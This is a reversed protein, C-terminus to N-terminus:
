EKVVKQVCKRGESDTVNVFYVGAPLATMDIRLEDDEGQVSLVPQGLLNVVEAQQLNKGMITITGSTPNPHITAFSTTTHEEVDDTLSTQGYRLPYDPITCYAIKDIYLRYEIPGGTSHIGETGYGHYWGYYFKGDIVKRMGYTEHYIGNSSQNPYYYDLPRSAHSWGNPAPIITDNEDFTYTDNEDLYVMRTRWGNFSKEFLIYEHSYDDREGYFRHDAWGDGDFDLDLVRYPGYSNQIIELPPDFETYIIEGQQAFVSTITLLTFLLAPLKISKM